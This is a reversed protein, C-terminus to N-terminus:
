KDKAVVQQEKKWMEKFDACLSTWMGFFDTPTMPEDDGKWECGYFQTLSEFRHSCIIPLNMQCELSKATKCYRKRCDALGEIQEQISKNALKIFQEMTDKFPQLIDPESTSVVSGCLREM